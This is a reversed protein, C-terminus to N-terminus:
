VGEERAGGCWLYGYGTEPRNPPIAITVLRDGAAALAAAGRLAKLLGEPEGIWHDAPLVTMVGGCERERVLAAAWALGAATNRGEPELLLNDGSLDPLQERVLDRYERSTVVLIREWPFEPLVRSVTLQLMTLGVGLLDIFQKPLHNRSLPWFRRGRGGALVVAWNM